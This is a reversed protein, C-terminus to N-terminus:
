FLLSHQAKTVREYVMDVIDVIEIEMEKALPQYSELCTVCEVAMKKAGTAKAMELKKIRLSKIQAPNRKYQYYGCCLSEKRNKEMEVLNAMKKLVKRAEEPKEIKNSIHCSDHFTVTGQEKSLGLKDINMLIWQSTTLPEYSGGKNNKLLVIAAYCEACGTVIQKPNVKAILSHLNEFLEEARSFDGALYQPWGCCSRLGGLVEYDIGMHNALSLTKAPLKTPSFIYCGFYFLTDASRFDTKDIHKALEKMGLGKFFSFLNIGIDKVASQAGGRYQFHDTTTPATDKLQHKQWLVMIDRYNFVPCVHRCKGCQTCEKVFKIIKDHVKIDKLSAGTYYNLAVVNILNLDEVGDEPQMLPCAVM